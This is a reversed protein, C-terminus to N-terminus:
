QDYTEKHIAFNRGNIDRWEQFLSKKEKNLPIDIKDLFKENSFIDSIDLQNKFKNPWFNSWETVDNIYQEVTMDSFLSPHYMYFRKCFFSSVIQDDCKIVLTNAHHRLAFDSDCCSIIEHKNYYQEKEEMSTSDSNQLLTVDKNLEVKGNPLLETFCDIDHLTTILDGAFGGRFLIIKIAKM